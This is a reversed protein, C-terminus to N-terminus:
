VEYGLAKLERGLETAFLLKIEPDMEQHWRGISAKPGKSSMHDAFDKQQSLVQKADLDVGLRKSLRAAVGPLDLIMDEYRVITCNPDHPAIELLVRMRRARDDLFRAAFELESEDQQVSFSMTGRKKNFSWISQLIDRPDRLLYIVQHEIGLERLSYQFPTRTKEAFYISRPDLGPSCSESRRARRSFERWATLFAAHWLPTPGDVAFGHPMAFPPPEIDNGPTPVEQVLRDITWGTRRQRAGALQWAWRMYFSLYRTEFPSSREFVVKPSTGLLQMLLTSGSRAPFLLLLPQLM